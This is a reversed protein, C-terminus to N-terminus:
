VDGVALLRDTELSAIRRQLQQLHDTVLSVAERDGGMAPAARLAREVAREVVHRADALLAAAKEELSEAAHGADPLGRRLIQHVHEAPLHPLCEVVLQM